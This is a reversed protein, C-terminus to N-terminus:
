HASARSLDIDFFLLGHNKELAVLEPVYLRANSLLDLQGQLDFYLLGQATSHPAIVGDRFGAEEAQKSLEVWNKDRGVKTSSPLPFPLRSKKSPDKPKASFVVDAVDDSTMTPLEQRNDDELQLSLRIRSINVRISDPTENRFMVRIAVIGSSFPNKKPFAAKYQEAVTLPEAAVTMGEHSDLASTRMSASQPKQQQALVNPVLLLAASSLTLASKRMLNYYVKEM